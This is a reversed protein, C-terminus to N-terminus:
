SCNPDLELHQRGEHETESSSPAQEILRQIRLMLEDPIFPKVVYDAAGVRLASVIDREGKRATLMLAPIKTLDPDEKLKSLLEFGGMGPMMADLVILDPSKARITALGDNGNTEKLVEHGCSRLRIEILDLLLTDDDCILIRAM